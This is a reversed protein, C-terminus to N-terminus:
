TVRHLHEIAMGARAIQVAPVFVDTRGGRNGDVQAGFVERDGTPPLVEAAVAVLNGGLEEGVEGAIEVVVQTEVVVQDVGPSLRGGTALLGGLGAREGRQHEDMLSIGTDLGAGRDVLVNGHAVTHLVDGDHGFAHVVRDAQDAVELCWGETTTPGSVPELAVVVAGRTEACRRGLAAASDTSAQAEVPEAVGHRCLDFVARGGVAVSQLDGGTGPDHRDHKCCGAALGVRRCEIRRKSGVHDDVRRESLDVVTCGDRDAVSHEGIRCGFSGGHEDSGVIVGDCNRHAPRHGYGFLRTGADRERHAGDDAVGFRGDAIFM